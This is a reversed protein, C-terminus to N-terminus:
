SLLIYLGRIMGLTENGLDMYFMHKKHRFSQELDTWDRLREVCQEQTFSTLLLREEEHTLTRLIHDQHIKIEPYAEGMQAIYVKAVEAM